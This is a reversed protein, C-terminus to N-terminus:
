RTQGKARLYAANAELFGRWLRSREATDRPLTRAAALYEARARDREARLDWLTATAARM